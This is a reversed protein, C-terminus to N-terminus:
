TSSKILHPMLVVPSEPICGGKQHNTQLHELLGLLLVNLEAGRWVNNGNFGLVVM